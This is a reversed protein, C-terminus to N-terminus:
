FKHYENRFWVEFNEIDINRLLIEWVSIAFIYLMRMYIIGCM